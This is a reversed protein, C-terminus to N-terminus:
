RIGKRANFLSCNEVKGCAFAVTQTNQSPVYQGAVYEVLVYEVLIFPGLEVLEKENISDVLSGVTSDVTWFEVLKYGLVWREAVRKPFIYVGGPYRFPLAQPVLHDGYQQREHVWLGNRCEALAPYFKKDVGHNEILFDGDGMFLAIVDTSGTEEAVTCNM